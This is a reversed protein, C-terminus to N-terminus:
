TVLGLQAYLLLISFVREDLTSSVGTASAVFDVEKFILPQCDNNRSALIRGAGLAAYRSM